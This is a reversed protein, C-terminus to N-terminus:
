MPNQQAWWLRARMGLETTYGTAVSSIRGQPDVVLWVPVMPLGYRRAVDGHPDVATTWTWGQQAMYRAVRAADGSRSAVTLVPWDAAVRSVSSAEAKCFPCWDSWLHVAVARGPHAARWKALSISAPGRGEATVTATVANLGLTAQGAPHAASGAQPLLPLRFDPAPGAPVDRTQWLQVAVWAVVATLATVGHSCWNVQRWRARLGSGPLPSRVPQRLTM